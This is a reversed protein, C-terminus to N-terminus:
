INPLRTGTTQCLTLHVLVISSQTYLYIWHRVFGGLQRIISTCHELAVTRYYSYLGTFFLMEVEYAIDVLASDYLCYIEARLTMGVGGRGEGSSVLVYLVLATGYALNDYM